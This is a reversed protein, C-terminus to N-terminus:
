GPLTWEADGASSDQARTIRKLELNDLWNLGCAPCNDIVVNGPGAYHHTMMPKGCGPCRVRRELDEPRPQARNEDKVANKSRLEAVIAVFAGMEMLVGRCRGCRGAAAGACIVESLPERCLPCLRECVAGSPRLGDEDPELVKVTRCYGCEYSARELKLDMAAGCNACNM